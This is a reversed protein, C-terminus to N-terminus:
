LPGQEEPEKKDAGVPVENQGEEQLENSQRGDQTTAGLWVRNREMRETGTASEIRHNESFGKLISLLIDIRENLKKNEEKLSENEATVSGKPQETYVEDTIIEYIDYPNIDCYDIIKKLSSIHPLKKPNNEIESIAGNSIGIGTALGKSNLGKSLKVQQIINRLKDSM